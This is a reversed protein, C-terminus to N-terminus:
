AAAEGIGDAVPYAVDLLVRGCGMPWLGRGM